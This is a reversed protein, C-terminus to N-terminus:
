SRLELAIADNIFAQMRVLPLEGADLTDAARMLEFIAAVSKALAKSPPEGLM